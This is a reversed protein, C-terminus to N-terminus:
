SPRESSWPGLHRWFAWLPYVLHLHPLSHLIILTSSTDNYTLRWEWATKPMCATGFRSEEFHHRDGALSLLAELRATGTEEMM